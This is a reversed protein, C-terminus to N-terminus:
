PYRLFGVIPPSFHRTRRFVGIGEPSGNLDTNGEITHLTGDPDVSEVIGTHGGGAKFEMIFIDGVQPVFGPMDNSKHIPYAVQWAHSVSATKTLPNVIGMGKSAQDFCWYMFAACWAAPFYVGACLLYDQIPHGWNSGLPNEMKGVQTIAIQLAADTLKSM